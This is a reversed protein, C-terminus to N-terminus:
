IHNTDHFDVYLVVREQDSDNWASHELTDNFIVADGAKKWIHVEGGVSLGCTDGPPILLGLHFILSSPNVHQHPALRSKPHLRSFAAYNLTPIKKLLETTKPFRKPMAEVVEVVFVPDMYPMNISYPNYNGFYVPCVTWDGNLFKCHGTPDYDDSGWHMWFTNQNLEDLIDQYQSALRQLDPFQELPFFATREEM